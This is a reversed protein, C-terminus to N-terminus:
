VRGHATSSGSVVAIRSAIFRTASISRFRTRAHVGGAASAIHYQSRHSALCRGSVPRIKCHHPNNLHRRVAYASWSTGSPNRQCSIMRAVPFGHDLRDYGRGHFSDAPATSRNITHAGALRQRDWGQFVQKVRQQTTLVINLWRRRGCGVTMTLPAVRVVPFASTTLVADGARMAGASRPTALEFPRAAPTASRADAPLRTIMSSASPTCSATVYSITYRDNSRTRCAMGPIACAQGVFRPHIFVRERSM